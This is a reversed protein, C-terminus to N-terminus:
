KEQGQKAQGDPKKTSTEAIEARKKSANRRNADIPLGAMLILFFLFPLCDDCPALEAPGQRVVIKPRTATSPIHPM